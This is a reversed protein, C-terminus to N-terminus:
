FISDHTGIDNLFDDLYADESSLFTQLHLELNYLERFEKEIMRLRKRYSRVEGEQSSAFQIVIDVDRTQYKGLISGFVFCRRVGYWPDRLANRLFIKMQVDEWATGEAEMELHARLDQDRRRIQFLTRAFLPVFALVYAVLLVTCELIWMLFGTASDTEPPFLYPAIAISVGIVLVTTLVTPFNIGLQRITETTTRGLLSM